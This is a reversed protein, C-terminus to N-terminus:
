QFLVGLLFGVFSAVSISVLFALWLSHTLRYFSVMSIAGFMVFEGQSFNVIETANYIINYTTAILAYFCGICLGTFLYQLFDSAEM